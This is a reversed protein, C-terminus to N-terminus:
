NRNNKTFNTLVVYLLINWCFILLLEHLDTQSLSRRINQPASDSRDKIWDANTPCQWMQEASCAWGPCFGYNCHRKNTSFSAPPSTIWWLSTRQSNPCPWGWEPMGNERLGECCPVNRGDRCRLRNVSSQGGKALETDLACPFGWSPSWHFSFSSRGTELRLAHRPCEALLIRKTCKEVTGAGCAGVKSPCTHLPVSQLLALAPKLDRLVISRSHLYEVARQSHQCPSRGTAGAPLRATARWTACCKKPWNRTSGQQLHIARHQLWSIQM